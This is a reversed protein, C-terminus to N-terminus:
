GYNRLSRLASPSARRRPRGGRRRRRACGLNKTPYFSFAAATASRGARRGESSPRRAGPRLGRGRSGTRARALALLATMDAPQGHPPGPRDGRTRSTRARGRDARTSAHPDVAISTRSSAAPARASSGSPPPPRVHELRHDGRRGARCRLACRSRSRTPGPPSASATSWASTPPSAGSSLRSGSASCWGSVRSCRAFRETSRRPSGSWAPAATLRGPDDARRTWFPPNRRM